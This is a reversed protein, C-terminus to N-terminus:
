KWDIYSLRWNVKSKKIAKDYKMLKNLRCRFCLVADVTNLQKFDRLDKNLMEFLVNKYNKGKWLAIQDMSSKKTVREAKKKKM